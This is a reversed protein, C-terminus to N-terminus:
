GQGRCLAPSMSKVNLNSIANQFAGGSAFTPVGLKKADQTFADASVYVWQTTGDAKTLQLHYAM